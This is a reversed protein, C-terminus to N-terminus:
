ARKLVGSAGQQWNEWFLNAGFGNKWDRLNGSPNLPSVVGGSVRLYDSPMLGDAMPDTAVAQALAARSTVFSAAILTAVFFFSRLRM